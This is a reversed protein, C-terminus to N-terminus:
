SLLEPEELGEGKMATGDKLMLVDVSPGLETDGM